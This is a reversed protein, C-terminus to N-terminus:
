AFANERGHRAESSDCLNGSKWESRSLVSLKASAEKSAATHQWISKVYKQAEGKYESLKIVDANNFRHM